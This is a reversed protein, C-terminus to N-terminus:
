LSICVVQETFVRETPLCNHINGDSLYRKLPYAEVLFYKVSSIISIGRFFSFVLLFFLWLCLFLFFFEFVVLKTTDKEMFIQQFCMNKSVICDWQPNMEVLLNNRVKPLKITMLYLFRQSLLYYVCYMQIKKSFITKRNLVPFPLYPQLLM